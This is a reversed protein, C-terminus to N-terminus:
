KGALEKLRQLTHKINKARDKNQGGEIKIIEELQRIASSASIHPPTLPAKIKWTDGSKVVIFDIIEYFDYTSLNDGGGLIGITKYKVEVSSETESIKKTNYLTISDVIFSYDWGPEYEWASLQNIDGDAQLGLRAGQLDLVYYKKVIDQPTDEMAFTISSRLLCCLVLFFCLSNKIVTKTM